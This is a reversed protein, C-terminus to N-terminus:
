AVHAGGDLLQRILALDTRFSFDPHDVSSVLKYVPLKGLNPPLIQGLTKLSSRVTNIQDNRSLYNTKTELFKVLWKPPEVFELVQSDDEYILGGVGASPPLAIVDDADLVTLGAMFQHGGAITAVTPYKFIYANFHQISSRLTPRPLPEGSEEGLVRLSKEAESNTAVTLALIGFDTGTAAGLNSGPFRKFHGKISQIDTSATRKPDICWRHRGPKKCDSANCTCRGDKVGHIPLIHLGLDLYRKVFQSCEDM